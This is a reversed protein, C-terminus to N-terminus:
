GVVPYDQHARDMEPPMEPLRHRRFWVSRIDRLNVFKDKSTIWRLIPNPTPTYSAHAALPFDESNIRFFNAGLEELQLVVYDTALDVKTSVILLQPSEETTM